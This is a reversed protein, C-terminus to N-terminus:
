DDRNAARRLRDNIALGLGSDPIPMVAIDSTDQDDLIHLMAFLNAAAEDVDGTPSLNLMRGRHAALNPGFALVAEDGEIHLANLRLRARPAYHSALMGPSALAEPCNAAQKIPQGIVAEIDSVAVGGARLLVAEEGLCGVVTSEVGIECNGGDLIVDVKDGLGKIVHATATPSLRGSPNASPAAVPVGAAQLLSQAQTHAPVRIALSDLGASALLSIACGQRRPVVLTLPGPWLAEALRTAKEDFVGLEMAETPTGVHSILPNFQPRGKASFIRAVAADNTADAGLGYVTETAFAVLKGARLAAAAELIDETVVSM